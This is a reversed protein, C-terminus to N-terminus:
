ASAPLADDEHEWREFEVNWGQQFGRMAFFLLLFQVPVLIATLTGLLGADMAPQEFGTSDRDFWGPIAILSFIAMIIALAAVVPLVGRNWRAVFYAFMVYIAVWGLCILKLGQLVEWGGLTIVLLLAASILLVVIVVVRMTKSSSKDRNPHEIIPERHVYETAM